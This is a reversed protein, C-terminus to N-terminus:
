LPRSFFFAFPAIQLSEVLFFAFSKALMPWVAQKVVTIGKAARYTASGVVRSADSGMLYLIAGNLMLMLMGAFAVEPTDAIASALLSLGLLAFGASLGIQWWRGWPRLRLLGISPLLYLQSAMVLFIGSMWFIDEWPLQDASLTFLFRVCLCGGFFLKAVGWARLTTERYVYRQRLALLERAGKATPDNGNAAQPSVYPNENSM